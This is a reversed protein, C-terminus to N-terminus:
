LGIGITNGIGALIIKDGPKTRKKIATKIRDIVEPVSDLIRKDMVGVAAAENEKVVIAEIAIDNQTAADEIAHKEPGPDGIAAGTGESVRGMEEGELKLAADITIIRAIKGKNDEVIKKVGFGPKGVTGGPGTARMAYVTRGEVDLPYYGVERSIEHVYTDATAGYERAFKTVVLPGLGDGIPKGQAFADLADFYAKALMLLEPMQMQIQMIMIQSGTKKGLLYFHRVIRFILGLVQTVELTNELSQHQSDSGEPAMEVVFEQFRDRREDLLHDLRKLIGAPDLDVPMITFYDLWRDLGKAVEEESNGFEKFTDISTQRSEIAMKKLEILGSEIQKLFQWMQIKAGYLSMIIIFAFFGINILVGLENGEQGPFQM